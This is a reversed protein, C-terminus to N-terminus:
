KMLALRVRAIYLFAQCIVYYLNSRLLMEINELFLSVPNVLLCVIVCYLAITRSM